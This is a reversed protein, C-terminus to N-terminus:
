RTGFPQGRGPPTHRCFLSMSCTHLVFARSFSFVKAAAIKRIKPRVKSTQPVVCLGPFTLTKVRRIRDRHVNCSPKIFVSAFKPFTDQDISCADILLRRHSM